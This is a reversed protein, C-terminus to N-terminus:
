LLKVRYQCKQNIIPVLFKILRSTKQAQNQEATKIASPIPKEMLLQFRTSNMTLTQSILPYLM